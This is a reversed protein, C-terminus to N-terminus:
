LGIEDPARVTHPFHKLRLGTIILTTIVEQKEQVQQEEQLKFGM